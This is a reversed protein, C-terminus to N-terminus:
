DEDESEEIGEVEVSTSRRSGTGLGAVGPILAGHGKKVKAKFGSVVIASSTIPNGDVDLTVTTVLVGSKRLTTAYTAVSGKGEGFSILDVMKAVPRQGEPRNKIAELRAKRKAAKEEATMTTTEAKKPFGKKKPAEAVETTTKKKAM